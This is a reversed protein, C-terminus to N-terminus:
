PKKKTKYFDLFRAKDEWGLGVQKMRGIDGMLTACVASLTDKEGSGM